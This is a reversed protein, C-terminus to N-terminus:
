SSLSSWGPAIYGTTLPISGGDAKWGERGFWPKEGFVMAQNLALESDISSPEAKGDYVLNLQPASQPQSDVTSVMGAGPPRSSGALM